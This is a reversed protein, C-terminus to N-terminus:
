RAVSHWPSFGAFFWLGIDAVTYSCIM